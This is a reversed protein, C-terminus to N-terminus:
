LAGAGGDRPTASSFALVDHHQRLWSNLRNKLVPTDHASGYGKGHIIRVCRSGRDRSADIFGLVASRAEGATMGHMDLEGGMALQGRRFRQLLRQQLGPRAFFLVDESKVRGADYMDSFTDHQADNGPAQPRRPRPSLRRGEPAARDHGLKRVPGVSRRFLDIEEDTPKKGSAM